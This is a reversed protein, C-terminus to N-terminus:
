LKKRNRLAEVEREVDIRGQSLVEDVLAPKVERRFGPWDPFQNKVSTWVDPREMGSRAAGWLHRRWILLHALIEECKTCEFDPHEDSWIITDKLMEYGFDRGRVQDWKKSTESQRGARYADVTAACFRDTPHSGNSRSALLRRILERYSM